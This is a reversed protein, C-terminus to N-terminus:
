MDDAYVTAAVPVDNRALRAADYLRPWSHEALLQAAERHAHLGAYDDWMTAPEPITRTSFEAGHAANPTWPRHPAKHHLMLFFPKDTPRKAIFDLALDTVVDTAYQGTYTKESTATYLVPDVYDGQGPFIEWRDFGQPDSGLHWKGLMGTYYGGQQLLRAVTLRASDFRRIEMWSSNLDEYMEATIAVRQARANERAARLCSYISGPNDPSLLLHQVVSEADIRGHTQQFEQASGLSDLARRWPAAQSKGAPGDSTSTM